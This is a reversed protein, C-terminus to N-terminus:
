LSSGTVEEAAVVEAVQATGAEGARTVVAPIDVQTAAVAAPVAPQTVEAAPIAAAVDPPIAELGAMGPQALEPLPLVERGGSTQPTLYSSAL